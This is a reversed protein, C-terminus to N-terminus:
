VMDVRLRCRRSLSERSEVGLAPLPIPDVSVMQPSTGSFPGEREMEQTGRRPHGRRPARARLTDSYTFAKCMPLAYYSELFTHAYITICHTIQQFIGRAQSRHLCEETIRVDRLLLLLVKFVLRHPSPSPPHLHIIGQSNCTTTSFNRLLILLLRFLRQPVRGM